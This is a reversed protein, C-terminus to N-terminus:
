LKKIHKEYLFASEKTVPFSLDASCNFFSNDKEVAVPFKSFFTVKVNKLIFINSLLFCPFAWCLLVNVSYLAQM